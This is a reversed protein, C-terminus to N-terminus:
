QSGVGAMGPLASGKSRGKGCQWLFSHLDQKLEGQRQPGTREWQCLQSRWAVSGAWHLASGVSGQNLRSGGCSSSVSPIKLLHRVLLEGEQLHLVISCLDFSEKEAEVLNGGLESNWFVYFMSGTLVKFVKLCLHQVAVGFLVSEKEGTDRGFSALHALFPNQIWKTQIKNGGHLFLVAPSGQDGSATCCNPGQGTQCSLGTNCLDACQQQQPLAM